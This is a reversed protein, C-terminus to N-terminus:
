QRINEWFIRNFFKEVKEKESALLKNQKEIEAKQSEIEATRRRVEAELESKQNSIRSIRMRNWVLFIIGAGVVSFGLTWWIRGALLFFLILQM